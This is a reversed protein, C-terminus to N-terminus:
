RGIIGADIYATDYVINNDIAWRQVWEYMKYKGERAYANMVNAVWVANHTPNSKECWARLEDKKKFIPPM